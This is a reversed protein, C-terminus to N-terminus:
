EHRRQRACLGPVPIGTRLHANGFCPWQDTIPHDRFVSPPQIVSFHGWFAIWLLCIHDKLPPPIQIPNDKLHLKRYIISTSKERPGRCRTSIPLTVSTESTCVARMMLTVPYSSHTPHITPIHKIAVFSSDSSSSTHPDM